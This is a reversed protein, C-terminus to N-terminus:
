INHTRVRTVPVSDKASDSPMRRVLQVPLTFDQQHFSICRIVCAARSPHIVHRCSQGNAVRIFHELSRLPVTQGLM